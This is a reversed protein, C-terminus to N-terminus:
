NEFLSDDIKNLLLNVLRVLQVKRILSLYLEPAWEHLQLAHKPERM